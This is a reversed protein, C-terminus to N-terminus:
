TQPSCNIESVRQKQITKEHFITDLVAILPKFRVIVHISTEGYILWRTTCAKLIKLPTMNELIQANEFEAQKISSYKFIKRVALLLIDISGLYKYEKMLHVLCLALRYNRCNLYLAFPSVHQIHRQLGKQQGSMANTGDLSSFRINEKAIHKEEFMQELEKMLAESAKSTGLKRICVFEEKPSNTSIDMYRVFVSMQARGAEDTSEDSLLAFDESSLVNSLFKKEIFDSIIRVFEDVSTTSLYTANKGMDRFHKELDADGLDKVFEVVDKFNNKVAWKKRAMLYVTEYHGKQKM